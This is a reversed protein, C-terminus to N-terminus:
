NREGALRNALLRTAEEFAADCAIKIISNSIKGRYVISITQATLTRSIEPFREWSFSELNQFRESSDYTYYDAQASLIGAERAKEKSVESIRM